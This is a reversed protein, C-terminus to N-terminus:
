DEAPVDRPLPLIGWLLSCSCLPTSAGEAVMPEDDLAPKHQPRDYPNRPMRQPVHDLVQSEFRCAAHRPRRLHGSVEGGYVGSVKLIAPPLAPTHPVRGYTITARRQRLTSTLWSPLLEGFLLPGFGDHISDAYQPLPGNKLLTKV